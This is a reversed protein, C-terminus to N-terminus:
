RVKAALERAKAAAATYEAIKGEYQKPLKGKDRLGVFFSVGTEYEQASQLLLERRKSAPMGPPVPMDSKLEGIDAHADGVETVAAVDDPSQGVIKLWADLADHAYRLADDWRGMRRLVYGIRGTSSAVAHAARSDNPDAAVARKRLDLAKQHWELATSNQDLHSTVWGLDSYDYSLDLWTNPGELNGGLRKEDIQRALEYHEFVKRIAISSGWCRLSDRTDWRSRVRRKM